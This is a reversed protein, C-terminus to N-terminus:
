FRSSAASWCIYFLVLPFFTVLDLFLFDLLFFFLKISFPIRLIIARYLANSCGMCVATTFINSLLTFIFALNFFFFFSFEFYNGGPFLPCISISREINNQDGVIHWTYVRKEELGWDDSDAKEWFAMHCSRENGGWSGAGDRVTEKMEMRLWDRRRWQSRERQKYSYGLVELKAFQSALKPKM